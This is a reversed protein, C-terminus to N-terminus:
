VCILTKILLYISTTGVKEDPTGDQQTVLSHEEYEMTNQQCLRERAAEKDIPSENQGSEVENVSDYADQTPHRVPQSVLTGCTVEGWSGCSRGGGFFTNIYNKDLLM